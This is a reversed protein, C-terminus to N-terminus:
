VNGQPEDGGKKKSWGGIFRASIYENYFDPHNGKYLEMMKDMRENLLEDCAEFLVYMDKRATKSTNRVEKPAAILKEFSRATQSLITLQDAPLNYEQLNTLIPAAAEGIETCRTCIDIENGQKLTTKSFDFKAKLGNDNKKSAYAVGANCVLLCADILKKFVQKKEESKSKSSTQELNKERISELYDELSIVEEKFPLSTSWVVEYKRAVTQVNMYM